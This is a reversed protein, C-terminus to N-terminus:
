EVREMMKRLSGYYAGALDGLPMDVWDNIALRDGIVRGIASIPVKSKICHEVLKEGDEKAVSVVIRSQTEGFLLADARIDDDLFIQAGIMRERNGICCEALTVALGGDSCDHASKIIGSKIASLLTEQLLKEFHLNLEPVPGATKGFITHIYESAGVESENEGILFILDGEDKFWQTTIHDIDEIIGLMGIVPTPFVAHEPDENYFSVNGGTVPTSFVRCAEGMGAVAESFCYYIEPKYPNGFNLCNTIAVPQAGSCVVNRASEAVAQQAGLRPGLYCYRGNCDTSLAIAKRSKRIRM